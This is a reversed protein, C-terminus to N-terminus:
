RALVLSPNRSSSRWASASQPTGRPAPSARRRALATAPQRQELRQVGEEAAAVGVARDGGQDDVLRLVEVGVGELVQAQEGVELGVRRLQQLDDEDALGLQRRDQAARLQPLHVLADGVAAVEARQRRRLRLAVEIVPQLAGAGDGDSSAGAARAIRIAAARPTGRRRLTRPCM